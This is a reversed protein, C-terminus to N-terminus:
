LRYIDRVEAGPPTWEFFLGFGIDHADTSFEWFLCAGDPHTPVRVTVSEGQGIRLVSEGGEARVAARFDAVDKRTWMSAAAIPPFKSSSKSSADTIQTNNEDEEHEDSSGSFADQDAEQEGHASNNNLSLSSLDPPSSSVGTSSPNTANNTPQQSQQQAAPPFAVLQRM